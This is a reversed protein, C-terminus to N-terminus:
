LTLECRRLVAAHGLNLITQSCREGISTPLFPTIEENLHNKGATAVCLPLSPPDAGQPSVESLWDSLQSQSSPGFDCIGKGTCFILQGFYLVSRPNSTTMWYPASPPSPYCMGLSAFQGQPLHQWGTPCLLRVRTARQWVALSLGPLEALLLWTWVNVFRVGYFFTRSNGTELRSTM